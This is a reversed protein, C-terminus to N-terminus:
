RVRPPQPLTVAIMFFLLVEEVARMSATRPVVEQLQARASRVARGWAPPRAAARQPCFPDLVSPLDDGRLSVRLAMVQFSTM